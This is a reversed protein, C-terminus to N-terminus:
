KVVEELARGDPWATIKHKRLVQLVEDREAPSGTVISDLHDFVSVGNKFITENNGVGGAQRWADVGSVRMRQVYDATVRGYADHDYSVSDLRGLLDAKWVFGRNGRAARASKIRTFFYSAGGTQLDQSPSWGGVPIGRRLKDTTPAFQGGSELVRDLAEAVSSANTVSHHLRWDRRFRDWEKGRLDPRFTHASGTDFAQRVGQAVYGPLEGVDSAGALKAVFERGAQVRAAQDAIGQMAQEYDRLRGAHNAVQLQYLEEVDLDTARASNIGLRDLAGIAKAAAAADDGQVALEVRGDLAFPAGSRESWFRVRVGDISAEHFRYASFNDDTGRAIHGRRVTAAKFAEVREAFQVPVAQAGVARGQIAGQRALLAGGPTALKQPAGTGGKVADTIADIWAQYYDLTGSVESRTLAGAAVLDDARKRLQVLQAAAKGARDIDLARVTANSSIGKVAALISSHLDADDVVAAAGSGKEALDRIAAYGSGRAKLTAVTYTEGDAGLEQWVLVQQDEIQDKDTRLAYGNARSDRIRQLEVAAVRAGADDAQAVLAEPIPYKGLIHAKRAILVDALDDAQDRPMLERALRRIEDDDIGKLARVGALMRAEDLQGFVAAAQANIGPNRLSDLEEVIATLAPKRGGQARFLLAGGTDLRFARKGRALMNDFSLGVADWNALWADVVFGEQSGAAERLRAGINDLGDVVRSAVGLGTRGNFTVGDLLRVDAADVGAAQYLRSALVENRAHLDSDPLKVYWKTGTDPDVFLAGPNSGGQGGIQQLRAFDPPGTDPGSVLNVKPVTSVPPAAAAAQQAAKAKAADIKAMFDAKAADDLANFAKAAAPPPTKGALAAKKYAGLNNLQKVHAKIAAGADALQDLKDAIPANVFAPDDKLKKWARAMWGGPDAPISKPVQHAANEVIEKLQGAQAPTFGPPGAGKGAKKALAALAPDDVSGAAAKAADASLSANHQDLAENAAQQLGPPMGGLKQQAVEQLKDYSAKGPHYDWGPDIGKPVQYQKGTSPNTWPQLDLPPPETPGGMADADEETLPVVSCRCNWGNPPYHTAWFEHDVPLITGDWAAHEPRVRHDNVADYLLFPFDDKTEQIQQWHGAAYGAQLNQRFILRLRAPSGLQAPQPLGTIPNDIVKKGWWGAAELKPQLDEIFRAVTHGQAIAANVHQHVEHLLDADLMKAVTFAKEHETHLMDQWNFTPQLGKATYIALAQEHQLDFAAAIAM